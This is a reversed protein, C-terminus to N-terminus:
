AHKPHEPNVHIIAHELERWYGAFKCLWSFSHSLMGCAVILLRTLEILLLPTASSVPNQDVGKGKKFTDTVLLHM